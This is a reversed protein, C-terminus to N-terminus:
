VQTETGTDDQTQSSKTGHTEKEDREENGGEGRWRRRRVGDREERGGERRRRLEAGVTSEVEEVEKVQTVILPFGSVLGCVKSCSHTHGGLLPHPRGAM